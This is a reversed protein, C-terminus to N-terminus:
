ISVELQSSEDQAMVSMTACCLQAAFPGPLTSQPPWTAPTFKARNLMLRRTRSSDRLASSDVTVAACSLYLLGSAFNSWSLTHPLPLTSRVGRPMYVVHRVTPFILVVLSVPRVLVRVEVM